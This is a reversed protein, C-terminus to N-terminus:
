KLSITQVCVKYLHCIRFETSVAYTTRATKTTLPSPLTHSFLPSPHVYMYRHFSPLFSHLATRKGLLLMVLRLCVNESVCTHIAHHLPNRTHVLPFSPLFILRSPLDTDCARDECLCQAHAGLNITGACAFKNDVCTLSQQPKSSHPSVSFRGDASDSKIKLEIGSLM